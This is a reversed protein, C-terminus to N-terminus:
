GNKKKPEKDWRASKCKPCILPPEKGRQIWSHKCSPNNCVLFEKDVEKIHIRGM